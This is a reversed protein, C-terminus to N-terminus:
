CAPVKGQRWWIWSPSGTHHKPGIMKSESFINFCKETSAHFTLGFARPTQCKFCFLKENM